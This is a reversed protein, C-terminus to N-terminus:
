DDMMPRVVELVFPQLIAGCASCSRVYSHTRLRDTLDGFLPNGTDTIIARYKASCGPCRIPALSGVLAGAFLEESATSGAVTGDLQALDTNDSWHLLLYVLSGSPLPMLVRRVTLSSRLLSDDDENFAVVREADVVRDGAILYHVRVSGLMIETSM